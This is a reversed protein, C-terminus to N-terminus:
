EDDGVRFIVYASSAVTADALHADVKIFYDAGPTLGQAPGVVWENGIIRQKIVLDGSDNLIYLDYFDSGPIATWSIVLDSLNVQAGDVPFLLRPAETVHSINRLQRTPDSPLVGPTEETQPSVSLLSVSLAIVMVAATAWAVVQKKVRPKQAGAMQKATVLLEQEIPESPTPQEIRALMGLKAQCYSCDKVHRQVRERENADLSADYYLAIEKEGPCFETRKGM